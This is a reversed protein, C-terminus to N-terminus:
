LYWVNMNEFKGCIHCNNILTGGFHYGHRCFVSNMGFSSARALSFLCNVGLSRCQEGMKGLLVSALGLGRYEPLTAFDTMEVRSSNYDVEVSSIAAIRGNNLALWFSDGANMRNVLYQQRFVPSPYTKFVSRFVGAMEKADDKVAKRIEYGPPSITKHYVKKMVDVLLSNQDKLYLSMSRRPNAYGALFVGDEGNFYGRVRGELTFYGYNEIKVDKVPLIVKEFSLKKAYLLLYRQMKVLNQYECHTVWLRKNTNDMTAKLQFSDSKYEFTKNCVQDKEAGLM